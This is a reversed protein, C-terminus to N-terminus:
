DAHTIVSDFVISDLLLQKMEAIETRTLPEHMGIIEILLPESAGINRSIALQERRDVNQLFTRTDSVANRVRNWYAPSSGPPYNGVEKWKGIMRGVVTEFYTYGERTKMATRANIQLAQRLQQYSSLWEDEEGRNPCGLEGLESQLFIFEEIPTRGGEGLTELPVCVRIPYASRIFLFLLVFTWRGFTSM